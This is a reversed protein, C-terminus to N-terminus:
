PQACVTVAHIVLEFQILPRHIIRQPLSNMHNSCLIRLPPVLVAPVCYGVLKKQKLKIGNCDILTERTQTHTLPGLEDAMGESTPEDSGNKTLDNMTQIVDM